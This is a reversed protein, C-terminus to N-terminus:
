KTIECHFLLFLATCIIARMVSGGKFICWLVSLGPTLISSWIYHTDLWWNIFDM